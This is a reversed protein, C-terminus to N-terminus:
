SQRSTTLRYTALLHNYGRLTWVRVPGIRWLGVGAFMYLAFGYIGFIYDPLTLSLLQGSLFFISFSLWVSYQFDKELQAANNNEILRSLIKAMPNNKNEVVQQTLKKQYDELTEGKGLEKDFSNAILELNLPRESNVSLDIERSITQLIVILENIYHKQTFQAFSKFIKEQDPSLPDLCGAHLPQIYNDGFIKNAQYYKQMVPGVKSNLFEVDILKQQYRGQWYLQIFFLVANLKLNSIQWNYREGLANIATEPTILPSQNIQIENM